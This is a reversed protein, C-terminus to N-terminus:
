LFYEDRSAENSMGQDAYTDESLYASPFWLSSKSEAERYLQALKNEKMSKRALYRHYFTKEAPANEASYGRSIYLLSITLLVISEAFVSMNKVFLISIRFYTEYSHSFALAPICDSVNSCLFFFRFSIWYVM